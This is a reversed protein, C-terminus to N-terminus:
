RRTKCLGVFAPLILAYVPYIKENEEPWKACPRCPTAFAVTHERIIDRGGGWWEM